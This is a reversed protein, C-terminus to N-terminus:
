SAPPVVNKRYRLFTEIGMLGVAGAIAMLLDHDTEITTQLKSISGEIHMEELTRMRGDLAEIKDRNEDTQRQVSTQAFDKQIGITLVTGLWLACLIKGARLALTVM